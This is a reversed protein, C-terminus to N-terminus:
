IDNEGGRVSKHVIGECYFLRHIGISNTYSLPGADLVTSAVAVDGTPSLLSRRLTQGRIDLEENM